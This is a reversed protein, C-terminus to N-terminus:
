LETVTDNGFIYPYIGSVNEMNSNVEILSFNHESTHFIISTVTSSGWYPFKFSGWPSIVLNEINEMNIPTDFNTVIYLYKANSPFHSDQSLQLLHLYLKTGGSPAPVLSLNGEEDVSVMKGADAVTVELRSDQIEFTKEGKKIKNVFDSM